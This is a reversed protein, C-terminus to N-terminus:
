SDPSMSHKPFANLSLNSKVGNKLKQCGVFAIMAANDTCYQFDPLVVPIKYKEQINGCEARLLSNAAVGGGLVLASFSFTKLAKEIQFIIQEIAAKQFSACIDPLSITEPNNKRAEYLVATKLGSYSFEFNKMKTVPFQYVNTKGSQALKDIIPGGPYELNLTRAVKDFCEGIADDRTTGLLHYDDFGNVRILMTHGGSLVVSLYPFQIDKRDILGAFIHGELHDVGVFPIGLVISLGKVFQLGVLLSGILGPAHTVALGDINEIKINALNLSKKVVLWINEMHERSANEPIVGGYKKHSIQSSVVNSVLEGDILIAASTEDCSSEVALIKNM